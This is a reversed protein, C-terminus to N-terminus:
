PTCCILAPVAEFELEDAHFDMTEKFSIPLSIVPYSYYDVEGTNIEVSEGVNISNGNIRDFLDEQYICRDTDNNSAALYEGNVRIECQLTATEWIHSTNNTIVSDLFIETKKYYPTISTAASPDDVKVVSCSEVCESVPAYYYVSRGATFYELEIDTIKDANEGSELAVAGNDTHVYASKIFYRVEKTEHPAMGVSPLYALDDVYERLGDVDYRSTFYNDSLDYGEFRDSDDKYHYPTYIGSTTIRKSDKRWLMGEETVEEGYNNLIEATVYFAPMVECSFDNDNTVTMSIVSVSGEMWDEEVTFNDVSVDTISINEKIAEASDVEGSEDTEGDPEGGPTEEAPEEASAENQVDQTEEDAVAFDPDPEYAVFTPILEFDVLEEHFDMTSNFSMPLNMSLSSYSLDEDNLSVTEGTNVYSFNVSYTYTNDFDDSNEIPVGNVNLDFQAHATMWRDSTNNTIEGTLFIRTQKYDPTFESANDIKEVECYDVCESVPVYSYKSEDVAYDALEIEVINDYAGLGKTVGDVDINTKNVYYCVEKTEHPALGVSLFYPNEYDYVKKGGDYVTSDDQNNNEYYHYPSYVEDYNSSSSSARMLIGEDTVLDPGGDHTERKVMFSPMVECSVDNDNTVTMYIAIVDGWMWDEIVELQEASVDTITVNEKLDVEKDTGASAAAAPFAPLAAATVAVAASMLVASLSIKFNHM